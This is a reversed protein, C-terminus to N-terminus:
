VATELRVASSTPLDHHTLNQLAMQLTPYSFHFGEAELRAPLVWRSKLLLEPETGILRGAIRLLRESAPLGIPMRLASRLTKMFEANPLPHPSTCNYVGESHPHHLFHDIARVFDVAHIWSIKQQGDGAKGGFGLRSLKRFVPYAGGNEGLVLSTRLAIKRTHALPISFFLEEWQKCVQPSFDLGLEGNTETMPRDRADRYITASSSNIWLKPAEKAMIAAAGLILTSETRSELIEKKNKATYRCHVSKGTLNILVDAGDVQYMWPGPQRGDWEVYHINGEQPKAHRTLLTIRDFKKRFYQTLLTGLFGTGGAIILHTSKRM